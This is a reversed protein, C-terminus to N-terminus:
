RARLNKLGLDEGARANTIAAGFAGVDPHNLTVACLFGDKIPLGAAYGATM